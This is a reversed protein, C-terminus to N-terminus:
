TLICFMCYYWVEKAKSEVRDPLTAAFPYVDISIAVDSGEWTYRLPQLTWSSTTDARVQKRRQLLLNMRRNVGKSTIEGKKM